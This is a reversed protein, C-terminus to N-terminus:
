DKILRWLCPNINYEEVIKAVESFKEEKVAKSKSKNLIARILINKPTHSFDVFELIKTDYSKYELLNARISDTLLDSFREKILGYGTLLKYRDTKIQKAIEHQCCPVSFIMKAGWNIANFLAYDTATDCAHLSIVIDVDFKAEYGNIDGIEFKLTDYSYKKAAKNCKEIVDEKLDLGIMNININKIYRFYHYVLFSLYSKGCGFDIINLSKYNEKKVVDDIIEIFRNIQKYKDYMSSVVKGEKTFIGMDILVDIAKGEEFIYEKKRNHTSQIKALKNINNQKIKNYFIKEKKSIKISHENKESWANLQTFENELSYLIATYLNEKKVNEHFVQKSTYRSIQYYEEKKEIVIKKYSENVKKANSLVIKFINEEFIRNLYDLMESM